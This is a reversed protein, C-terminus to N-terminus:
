IEIDDWSLPHGADLDRTVQRGNIFDAYRIEVGGSPRLSDVNGVQGGAFAIRDGAKIPKVVWLSPRLERNPLERTTPEFAVSGRVREAAQQEVAGYQTEDGAEVTRVLEIMKGLESPEVSFAWDFGGKLQEYRARSDGRSGIIHVEVMCAGHRVAELVPIHPLPVENELENAFVAHSSFGVPVELLGALAPITRVHVEDFASPYGSNCHLVILQQTGAARLTRVADEIELFTTMGTSIIVPLGTAGARELLKLDIAEYSGIKLAPARREVLYDVSTEDFASSFLAIGHEDAVKKLEDYWEWPTQAMEYLSYLDVDSWMTDGARRDFRGTMTDPTYLQLKAADAGAKAAAAVLRKAESLQGEHNCSIEAVFYAPEGAGIGRGALRFGM